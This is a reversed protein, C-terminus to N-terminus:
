SVYELTPSLRSECKKLVTPLGSGRGLGVIRLILQSPGLMMFSIEAYNVGFKPTLGLLSTHAIRRKLM